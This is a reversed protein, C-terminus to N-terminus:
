NNFKRKRISKTILYVISISIILELLIKLINNSTVPNKIIPEFTATITINENPMIFSSDDSIEMEKGSETVIKLSILKYGFAPKLQYKVKNDEVESEVIDINGNGKIVKDIKYSKSGDYFIIFNKGSFYRGASYTNGTLVLKNNKLALINDFFYVDNKLENNKYIEEYVKQFNWNNNTYKSFYAKGTTNEDIYQGAIYMNDKNDISVSYITGEEKFQKTQINGTKLDYYTMAMYGNQSGYILLGDKYEIVNEIDISTNLSFRNTIEGTDMSITLIGYSNIIYINNKITITKMRYDMTFSQKKSTKINGNLDLTYLQINNTQFDSFLLIIENNYYGAHKLTANYDLSEIVESIDIEKAVKGTKLDLLSIYKKPKYSTEQYEVIWLYENNILFYNQHEDGLDYEWKKEGSSNYLRIYNDNMLSSNHVLLIDNNINYQKDGLYMGDNFNTTIDEWKLTPVEEANCTTPLTLFVIPLLILLLIKKKM